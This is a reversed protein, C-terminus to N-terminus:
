HEGSVTAAASAPLGGSALTLTTGANQTATVAANITLSNLTGSAVTTGVALLVNDAAVFSTGLTGTYANFGSV